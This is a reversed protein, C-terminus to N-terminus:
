TSLVLLLVATGISFDYDRLEAGILWNIENCFTERYDACCTDHFAATKFVRGGKM